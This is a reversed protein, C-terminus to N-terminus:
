TLESSKDSIKNPRVTKGEDPIVHMPTKEEPKSSPFIDEEIGPVLDEKEVKRFMELTEAPNPKKRDEWKVDRIMIFRETEPNYLKYTDRTYNEAYGVMIAKFKKDTMQKKSNDRKTVYVICVFESFLGIIKSNERYFNGFPSTTSDMTAMSNRVHKCTHFAEAWLLKQAADNLKANLMM